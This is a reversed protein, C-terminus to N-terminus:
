VHLLKYISLCINVCNEECIEESLELATTETTMYRLIKIMTTLM